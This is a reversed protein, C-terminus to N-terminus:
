ALRAKRLTTLDVVDKAQLDYASHFALQLAATICPLKRGAIAGTTFGDVRNQFELGDDSTQM